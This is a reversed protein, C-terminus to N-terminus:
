FLQCSYFLFVYHSIEHNHSLLFQAIKKAYEIYYMILQSSLWKNVQQPSLSVHSHATTTLEATASLFTREEATGDYKSM